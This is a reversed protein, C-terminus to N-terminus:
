KSLSLYTKKSWRTSSKRNTKLFQCLLSLHRQKLRNKETSNRGVSSHIRRIEPVAEAAVQEALTAMSDLARLTNEDTFNASGLNALLTEVGRAILERNNM